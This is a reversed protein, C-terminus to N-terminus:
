KKTKDDEPVEMYKLANDLINKFVPASVAGGYYAGKPEDICVALVIRPKAVPAFGVFSSMYKGSAYRGTGDVKQATGTKGGSTYGNLKAKTGTGKDVVGKLIDRVTSATNESIVRRIMEPKFEKIINDEDDTICKVVYPRMLLGGNAIAAMSATLQLATVSIGQGMPVTSMDSPTWKQKPRIIGEEEGALDIGLKAGVGFKRIYDFLKDKGLRAAAKVTGINSSKEIVERFSLTGYPHVDHLIRKHIAYEGNECFFTDTPSAAKEEIIASATISKFVSGPEFVDTICKNKYAEDQTEAGTVPDKASSNPNFNPYSAMAIIEGSSPNMAIIMAGKPSKESVMAAMEREVFDQIVQDINLV